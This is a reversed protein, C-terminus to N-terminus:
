AAKAARHPQSARASLLESRFHEFEEALQKLIIARQAEAAESERLKRYRRVNEENFFREMSREWM